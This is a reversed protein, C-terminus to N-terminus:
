AGVLVLPDQATIYNGQVQQNTNSLLTVRYQYTNLTRNIFPINVQVPQSGAPMQITKQFSYSNATDQYSLEVIALKYTTADFAPQFTLDLGGVFPDSVIIASATSTVSPATILTGDKLYCNTTYSYTRDDKDALRLKWFQVPAFPRLVFTQSTHWGSQASYQIPVEIRDVLDPNIRGPSIALQLFGLFDNPDLALLRNETQVAPLTYKTQEGQWGSEADFEYDATYTYSTSQILGEYVDWTQQSAHTQDFVFDAHKPNATTAPNGYDLAVHASALGIGSFDRPPDITVLFKNFFPDNGAVKLFHKSEDIGQLLLGFYGQPSYVRQVASMANFEIEVTKLEDQQVYKLRLSLGFPSAAQSAAAATGAAQAVQNAIKGVSGGGGGSGSSGKSGSSGGSPPPALSSSSSMGGSGMSPAASSSSAGGMTTPHSSTSSMGTMGSSSGGMTMTGSSSGGMMGSSRASSSSSSSGASHGTSGVAVSSADAAAATTPSLSPTFWQALIQDKFLNLAWQEQQQVSADNSLSVIDVKIVGDQRLKEFTADIGASVWYVSGTLDVSFSQYARKLDCTIKVDLAPLVGTFKMNYIGGVPTMGDQFAQELITAGMESLTLAFLA